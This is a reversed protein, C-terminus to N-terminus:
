KLALEAMSHIEGTAWHYLIQRCHLLSLSSGQIPFIGQLLACGGMRTNKGPFDWPCLLKAFYLGPPDWVTPCLELSQAQLCATVSCSWRLSHLRLGKMLIFIGKGPIPVFYRQTPMKSIRCAMIHWWSKTWMELPFAQIQPNSRPCLDIYFLFIGSPNHLTNPINHDKKIVERLEDEIRWKKSLTCNAMEGFKYKEKGCLTNCRLTSPFHMVCSRWIKRWLSPM